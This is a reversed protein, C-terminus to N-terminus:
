LYVINYVFFNGIREVLDFKVDETNMIELEHNTMIHEVQLTQLQNVKLNLQIQDSEIGEFVAGEYTDEVLQITIHAYRNYLQKDKKTKGFKEWRELNPYVNTSNITPAGVTMPLNQYPFGLNEVIWLGTGNDKETEAKITQTLKSSYIADLGRHVPNVTLASLWAVVLIYCILGVFKKKYMGLIAFFMGAAIVIFVYLARKEGMIATNYVMCVAATIFSLITSLILANGMRFNEIGTSMVYILLLIGLFGVGLIARQLPVMGLLTGNALWEPWPVSCYLALFLTCVIMSIMLPDKKKSKVVAIIGLILGMPFFSFFAAEECVNTNAFGLDEMWPFFLTAGWGFMRLFGGGGVSTRKGPYATNLVLEITDKSKMFITGLVGGMVLILVVLSLFVVGKKWEVHEREKLIMGVLLCLYVYGLTVQWAPYFVLIYVIGCWAIGLVLLLKKWLKQTYMWQALFVLALQGFVLMEVLGNIAFWWAVVPSCSILVAYAISLMKKKKTLYMGFELSVLFLALMRACWFFSLGQSPNLFLYGIQFPRFLAEWSRVPQGYIIFADTKDGRITDSFYPFAGTYNHYQSLAMPTNVGWEDTRIARYEGFVDGSAAGGNEVYTGDLSSSWIGVSSGSIQLLVCTILIAVAILYRFKFVKEGVNEYKKYMLIEGVEM